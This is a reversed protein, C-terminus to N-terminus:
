AISDAAKFGAYNTGNAALESFRAEGTNGAAVGYPDIRLAAAASPTLHLLSSPTQTGIGVNCALLNIEDTAQDDFEVRGAAAGLGLWGDDAAVDFFIDGTTMSGVRTIDGAPVSSWIPDAGAGQTLLCEGAVGASLNVWESGDYFLVDGQAPAGGFNVDALDGFNTAGGSIDDFAIWSASDEDRYELKGTAPDVRLGPANTYALIGLWHLYSADAVTSLSLYDDTDGSPKLNIDGETNIIDGEGTDLKQLVLDQNGEDRLIVQPSDGSGDDLTFDTDTTAAFNPLPLTFLIMSFIIISCVGKFFLNSRM